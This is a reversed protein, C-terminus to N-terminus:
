PGWCVVFPFDRRENWFCPSSHDWAGSDMQLPEASSGQEASVSQRAYSNYFVVLVLAAGTLILM